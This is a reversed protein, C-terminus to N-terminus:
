KCKKFIRWWGLLRVNFATEGSVSALEVHSIPPGHTGATALAPSQGPATPSFSDRDSMWESGTFIDRIADGPQLQPKPM